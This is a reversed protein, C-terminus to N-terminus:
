AYAKGVTEGRWAQAKGNYTFRLVDIAGAGTSLTPATGAAWTVTDTQGSPHTGNYTTITRSGTGDQAVEVTVIQGQAPNALTLTRGTAGLTVSFQSGQTCDAVITAGDVLAGPAGFTAIPNGM